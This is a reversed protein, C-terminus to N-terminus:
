LAQSVGATSRGTRGSGVVCSCKLGTQEQVELMAKQDEEPARWFSYAKIGQAAVIKMRESKPMGRDFMIELNISLTYPPPPLAGRAAPASLALPSLAAARFMGRRSISAATELSKM